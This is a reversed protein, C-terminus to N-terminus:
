ASEAARRYTVCFGARYGMSTSGAASLYGSAVSAVLPPLQMGGLEFDASSSAMGSEIVADVAIKIEPIMTIKKKKKKPENRDVKKQMPLFYKEALVKGTTIAADFTERSHDSYRERECLQESDFLEYLMFELDRQDLIPAPM